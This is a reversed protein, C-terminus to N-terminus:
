FGQERCSRVFYAMINTTSVSISVPSTPGRLKCNHNTDRSIFRDLPNSETFSGKVNGPM